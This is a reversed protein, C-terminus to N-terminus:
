KDDPVPRVQQIAAEAAAKFQQQIQQAQQQPNGGPATQSAVDPASATGATAQGTTAPVKIESVAGIQKKALVGVLAAVVLLSLIGFLARM